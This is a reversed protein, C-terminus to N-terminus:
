ECRFLNPSALFRQASMHKEVWKRGDRSMNDRLKEDALVRHVGDVLETETSAVIAGGSERLFDDPGGCEFSVVPTGSALAEFAVIGLGEQHSPLVLLEASRYLKAIDSVRDLWRVSDRLSPQLMVPPGPSVVTVGHRRVVASRLLDVVREFGKRPDHARGVFLVGRRKNDGPRFTTTDIPVPEITLRAAPVGLQLLCRATHPSMAIVRTAKRVVAKELRELAPLTARHLTRRPLRHRSIVARREDGIATACWVLTPTDPPASAGHLAVAGVVHTESVPVRGLMRRGAVYQPLHLWPLLRPVAPSSGNWSAWAKAFQLSASQDDLYYERREGRRHTNMWARYWDIVTGIGGENWPDQLLSMVTM